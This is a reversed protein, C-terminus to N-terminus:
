NVEMDSDIDKGFNEKYIKKYKEFLNEPVKKGNIILEKQNFKMNFEEDQSKILIDKVLEYRMDHM